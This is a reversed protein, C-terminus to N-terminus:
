CSSKSRKLLAWADREARPWGHWCSVRSFTNALATQRYPQCQDQRLLPVLNRLIMRRAGRYQGAEMLRVARRALLLCLHRNV